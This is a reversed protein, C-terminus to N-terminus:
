LAASRGVHHFLRCNSPALYNESVTSKQVQPRSEVTYFRLTLFERNHSQHSSFILPFNDASLNTINPRSNFPSLCGATPRPLIVRKM